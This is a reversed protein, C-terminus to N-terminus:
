ALRRDEHLACTAHTGCVRVEFFHRLHRHALGIDEVGCQERISHMSLQPIGIDVTRRHSSPSLNMHPCTLNPMSLDMALHLHQGSSATMTVSGGMMGTLRTSNSLTLSLNWMRDPSSSCTM